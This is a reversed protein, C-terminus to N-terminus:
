PLSQFLLDNQLTLAVQFRHPRALRQILQKGAHEAREIQDQRVFTRVKHQDLPVGRRRRGAGQRRKMPANGDAVDLRPKDDTSLVAVSGSVVRVRLAAVGDFDLTTPADVTWHQM